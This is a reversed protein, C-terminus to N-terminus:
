GAGLDLVISSPSMCAALARRYADVRRRDRLMSGYATIRYILISRHRTRLISKNRGHPHGGGLQNNAGEGQTLEGITGLRELKPAIYQRKETHRTETNRGSGRPVESPGEGRPTMSLM